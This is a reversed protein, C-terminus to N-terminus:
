AEIALQAMKLISEKSKAGCIFLGNHCFIADNCGTLTALEKDRKGAWAAPLPKRKSFPEASSVPIAQLRWDGTESPFCFFQHHNNNQLTLYHEIFPIFKDLIVLESDSAEAALIVEELAEAKAAESEITNLLIHTAFEVAHEFKHDFDSDSNWNPNFLSILSSVDMTGVPPLQGNDIADISRVLKNTIRATVYDVYQQKCFLSVIEKGFKEWLLGFSSLKIGYEEGAGGIQHHDFRNTAPNYTGGVDIVIDALNILKQDRTRVIDMNGPQLLSFAAVAFVDDAHFVGNHTVLQITKM